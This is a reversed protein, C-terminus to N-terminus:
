ALAAPRERWSPLVAELAEILARNEAETGITIRLYHPLGLADGSRTVIGRMMLDDYAQTAGVPVRLAIFNASSSYFSLGLRAYEQMLLTKGAKNVAISREVFGRDAFAALAAAISPGAINFPVRIRQMWGLLEPNGIMYGVRASALGYIKSLTRAVLVNPRALAVAIGDVTGAPMYERYAQDVLVLVQEPVRELFRRFDVPDVSTGSPNNPDCIVILKTRPGVAGLMAALDHVGERLPVERLDAGALKAYKPFLSFTPAAMVVGDGPDVFTQFLLSVLENSGHGAIVHAADTGYLVGIRSRLEPYDDDDYLHMERVTQLAALARPSTGLPNENSSLKVVRELGFRRKAQEITTGAKYPALDHMTKRVLRESDAM